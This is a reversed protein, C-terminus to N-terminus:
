AVASKRAIVAQNVYLRNFVRLRQVVSDVALSLSPSVPIHLYPLFSVPSWMFREFRVLELGAEEVLRIMTQRTMETEHQEDRLLGLKTSVHDWFPNPSSAIVRGGPKLVAAAELVADIPRPLHELLALASVLDYQKSKLEPPLCTVDGAALTLNEPMPAAQALLEASFEVGTITNGPMLRDMEQMTLGDAAGFDLIELGTQRGLYQLARDAVFRARTKYRFVLAPKRKREVAYHTDLIGKSPM